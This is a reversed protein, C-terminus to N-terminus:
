IYYSFQSPVIHTSGPGSQQLLAAEAASLGEQVKGFHNEELVKVEERM